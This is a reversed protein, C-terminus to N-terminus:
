VTILKPNRRQEFCHVAFFVPCFIKSFLKFRKPASADSFINNSFKATRKPNAYLNQKRRPESLSGLNTASGKQAGQPSPTNLRTVVVLAPRFDPRKKNKVETSQLIIRFPPCPGARLAIKEPRTIGANRVLAAV